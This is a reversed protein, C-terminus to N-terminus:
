QAPVPGRRAARSCCRASSAPTSRCWRTSERSRRRRPTDRPRPARGCADAPLRPHARRERPGVVSLLDGVADPERALVVCGEPGKPDRPSRGPQPPQIQLISCAGAVDQTSGTRRHGVSSTLVPSHLDHVCGSSAFAPSFGAAGFTRYRGRTTLKVAYRWVTARLAVNPIAREQRTAAQNWPLTAM